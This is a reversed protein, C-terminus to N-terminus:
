NHTLVFQEACGKADVGVLTAAQVISSVVKGYYVNFKDTGDPTALTVTTATQSFSATGSNASTGFKEGDIGGGGIASGTNDLLIPSGGIQLGTITATGSGTTGQSFALTGASLKLSNSGTGTIIETVVPAGKGNPTSGAIYSAIVTMQCFKSGTYIYTGSLLPLTAASAFPAGAMLLSLGAVVAATFKLM